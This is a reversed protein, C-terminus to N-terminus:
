FAQVVLGSVICLLCIEWKEGFFQGVHIAVSVSDTSVIHKIDKHTKRPDTKRVLRRDYLKESEQSCATRFQRFSIVQVM